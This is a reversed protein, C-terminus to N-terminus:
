LVMGGIGTEFVIEGDVLGQADYTFMTKRLRDCTCVLLLRSGPEVIGRFRTKKIGTFGIFADKLEPRRQVFDYTAIQASAEVMLAGPFLPRGPIHDSAWWDDARIDKYGVVVETSLDLHLLGDVLAFRGQQSLLEYLEDHSVVERTLDLASLDYLPTAPM